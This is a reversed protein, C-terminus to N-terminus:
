INGTSPLLVPEFIIFWRLMFTDLVEIGTDPDWNRKEIINDLFTKHALTNIIIPNHIIIQLQDQETNWIYCEVM